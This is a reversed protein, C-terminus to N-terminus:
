HSYIRDQIKDFCFILRLFYAFPGLGFDLSGSSMLLAKAGFKLYLGLSTKETPFIILVSSGIM